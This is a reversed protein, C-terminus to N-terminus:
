CSILLWDVVGGVVIDVGIEFEVVMMLIRQFGVRISGACGMDVEYAYTTGNWTRM